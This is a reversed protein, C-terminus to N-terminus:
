FWVGPAVTYVIEIELASVGGEQIVLHERTGDTVGPPVRHPIRLNIQERGTNGCRACRIWFAQSLGRCVSCIREVPPALTYTGGHRAEEPSLIVEVQLSEAVDPRRAHGIQTEFLWELRSASRRRSPGSRQAVPSQQSLDQDHQRRSRPDKLVEYAKQIVLFEEKCTEESSTDPHYKKALTKYAKKIEPLTSNKRIGLIEYYNMALVGCVGQEARLVGAEITRARLLSAHSGWGM